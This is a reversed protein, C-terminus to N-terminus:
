QIQGTRMYLIATQDLCHYMTMGRMTRMRPWKERRSCPTNNKNEHTGQKGSAWLIYDHGELGGPNWSVAASNCVGVVSHQRGCVNVGHNEIEDDHRQHCYLKELRISNRM